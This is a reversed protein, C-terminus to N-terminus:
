RYKRLWTFKVVTYPLPNINRNQTLYKKRPKQNVSEFAWVPDAWQGTENFLCKCNTTGVNDLFCEGNQCPNALVCDSLQCRTGSYGKKLSSIESKLKLLRFKSREQTAYAHFLLSSLFQISTKVCALAMIMVRISDPQVPM